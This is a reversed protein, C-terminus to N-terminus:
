LEAPPQLVLPKAETLALAREAMALWDLVLLKRDEPTVKDLPVTISAELNAEDCDVRLTITKGYM